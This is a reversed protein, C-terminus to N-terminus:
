FLTSLTLFTKAAAYLSLLWPAAEVLKRVTGSEIRNLRNGTLIFSLATAGLGSAVTAVDAMCIYEPLAFGGTYGWINALGETAAVLGIMKPGHRRIMADAYWSGTNLRSMWRARQLIGPHEHSLYADEKVMRRVYVTTIADEFFLKQDRLPLKGVDAFKIPPKHYLNFDALTRSGCVGTGKPEESVGPAFFSSSLTMKMKGEVFRSGAGADKGLRVHGKIGEGSPLRGKPESQLDGQPRAMRADETLRVVKGSRDSHAIGRPVFWRLMSRVKGTADM